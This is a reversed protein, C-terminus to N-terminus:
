ELDFNFQEDISNTKSHRNSDINFSAPSLSLGFKVNYINFITKRHDEPLESLPRKWQEETLGLEKWPEKFWEEYEDMSIMM